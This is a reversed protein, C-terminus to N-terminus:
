HRATEEAVGALRGSRNVGIVHMGHQAAQRGIERGIRGYGIIGVTAGAIPAPLFRRWREQATPWSKAQRVDMMALLRHAFGLIMMLVYEALPVPSVGGITTIALNSRWLATNRVHDVGSTDLQVWQLAPAQDPDPLATSTHLVDMTQRVDDPVDAVSAEPFQLVHVNPAAARLRALWDDDFSLVSVYQLRGESTTV